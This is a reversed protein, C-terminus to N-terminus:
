AVPASLPTDQGSMLAALCRAGAAVPEIVPLPCSAAVAPVAAALPGGGVLVAQAGEAACDLALAALAEAMSAPSSMVAAVDGDSIRLSVLRGAHGYDRVKGLISDRLAPTTTIISFRGHRAAEAMGAEAIGTVPVGAHERLQALGPDGFASVLLGGVGDAALSRGVTM